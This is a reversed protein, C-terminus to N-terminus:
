KKRRKKRPRKRPLPNHVPGSGFIEPGWFYVIAGGVLIAGIAIMVTAGLSVSMAPQPQVVVTTSGAPAPQAPPVVVIPTPAPTPPPLGGGHTQGGAQATQAAQTAIMTNIAAILSVAADHVVGPDYGSSNMQAAQSATVLDNYGPTPTAEIAASDAPAMAALDAQVFPWVAAMTAADAGNTGNQLTTLQAVADTYPTGLGTM